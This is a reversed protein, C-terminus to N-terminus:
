KVCAGLVCVEKKIIPLDIAPTEVTVQTNTQTNTQTNVPPAPQSPTVTTNTTTTTTSTNSTPAIFIGGPTNPKPAAPSKPSVVEFEETRFQPTDTNFANIHYEVTIVMWYNGPETDIPLTVSRPSTSCGKPINSPESNIFKHEHGLLQRTITGNATTYKCLAAEYKFVGGPVVKPTLVTWPQKTAVAGHLPFISSYVIYGTMLVLLLPAFWSIFYKM